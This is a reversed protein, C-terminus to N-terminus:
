EEGKQKTQNWFSSYAGYKESYETQLSITDGKKINLHKVIEPPINIQIGGNNDSAKRTFEAKDNSKM